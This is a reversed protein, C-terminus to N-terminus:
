LTLIGVMVGRRLLPYCLADLLTIERAVFNELRCNLHTWKLSLTNDPQRKFIFGKWSSMGRLLDGLLMFIM